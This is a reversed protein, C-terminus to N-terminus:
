VGPALARAMAASTSQGDGTTSFPPSGIKSHVKMHPCCAAFYARMSGTCTWKRRPGSFSAWRIGVRPQRTSERVADPQAIVCRRLEDVREHAREGLREAVRRGCSRQRRRHDGGPTRTVGGARVWFDANLRPLKRKETERERSSSERMAQSAQLQKM